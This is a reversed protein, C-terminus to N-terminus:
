KDADKPAPAPEKPADKEDGPTPKSGDAPKEGGGTTVPQKKEAPPKQQSRMMLAQMDASHTFEKLKLGEDAAFVVNMSSDEDADMMDDFDFSWEVCLDENSKKGNTELIKTPLTIKFSNRMGKLQGEFMPLMQKMDMGGTADANGAAPNTLSLKWAGNPLKESKEVASLTVNLMAFAGGRAAEELSTFKSDVTTTRKHDEIKQDAKTIEYGEVKKASEKLWYPHEVNTLDAEPLKQIDEPSANGFLTAITVLLERFKELDTVYSSALTGSGDKKVVLVDSTEACGVLPSVLLALVLVLSIRRM